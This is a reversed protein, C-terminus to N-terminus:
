TSKLMNLLGGVVEVVNDIKADLFVKYFGKRVEREERGVTKWHPHAAFVADSAEAIPEPGSIGIRHQLVWFVSFGDVSLNSDKRAEDAEMAEGRLKLLEQLAEQTDMQREHFMRAVEEAREGIPRLYPAERSRKRVEQDLVKLLNFVKVTDPVDDDALLALM